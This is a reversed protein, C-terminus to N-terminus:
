WPYDKPITWGSLMILAACRGGEANKKCNNILKSRSVLLPNARDDNVLWFGDPMIQRGTMGYGLGTNPEGWSFTFLDRGLRNEGSYSGDIDINLKGRDDGSHAYKFWAVCAGNPLTFSWSRISAFHGERFASGNLTTYPKYERGEYCYTHEWRDPPPFMRTAIPKFALHLCGGQSYDVGDASGGCGWQGIPLGDISAAYTDVATQVQAYSQKLRNLMVNKQHNQILTPLTMAAVVGIIGLTILVEALTFAAHRPKPSQTAHM